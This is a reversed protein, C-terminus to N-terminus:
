RPNEKRRLLSIRIAETKTPQVPSRSKPKSSGERAQFGEYKKLADLRDAESVPEVPEGNIDHRISGARAVAIQYSRSHVYTAMAKRLASVSVDPKLLPRVDNWLGLAFPRVPDGLKAPLIAIPRTLLANIAVTKAVERERALVPASCTRPSKTADAKQGM